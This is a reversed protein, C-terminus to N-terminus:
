AIGNGVLHISRHEKEEKNEKKCNKQAEESWPLLSQILNDDNMWEDGRMKEFIFLLYKYVDLNNAKATEVITLIGAVAKAGKISGCMLSTRRYYTIVKAMWEATMNHLPIDGDNLFETLEKQYKIYYNAADYLKGTKSVHEDTVIQQCYLEIEKTIPRILEDRKKQKEKGRYGQARLEKEIFFIKNFLEVGIRAKTRTNKGRGVVSAVYFRRRAHILCFAHTCNVSNYGQYADTILIGTFACLTLLAYESGRGPNCVFLRVQHQATEISSFLWMFSTNKDLRLVRIPTEDAHIYQQKLLEKELLDILYVLKKVYIMQPLREMTSLPITVGGLLISAAACIRTTPLFLGFELWLVMAVLSPSWPTHGIFSPDTITGHVFIRHKKQKWVPTGKPLKDKPAKSNTFKDENKTDCNEKENAKPILKEEEKSKVPANTETELLITKYGDVTHGTGKLSEGITIVAETRSDGEASVVYKPRKTIAKLIHVEMIKHESREEFCVFKYEHEGKKIIKPVEDPGHVPNDEFDRYEIQETVRANEFWKDFHGITVRAHKGTEQDTTNGFEEQIKAEEEELFAGYKQYEPSFEYEIRAMEYNGEGTATPASTTDGKKPKSAKKSKRKKGNNGESDTIAEYERAIQEKAEDLQSRTEEREDDSSDLVKESQAGRETCSSFCMRRYTDATESVHDLGEAVIHACITMTNCKQSLTEIEQEKKLLEKEQANCADEYHVRVNECDKYCQAMTSFAGIVDPPLTPWITRLVEKQKGLIPLSDLPNTETVGEDNISGSVTSEATKGDAKQATEKKTNKRPM